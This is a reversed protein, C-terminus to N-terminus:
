RHHIKESTKCWFDFADNGPELSRILKETRSGSPTTAPNNWEIMRHHEGADFADRGQYGPIRYDYFRGLM